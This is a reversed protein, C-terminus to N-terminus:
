TGTAVTIAATNSETWTQRLPCSSQSDFARRRSIPVRFKLWFGSEQLM